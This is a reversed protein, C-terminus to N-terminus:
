PQSQNGSKRRKDGVIERMRRRLFTALGGRRRLYSSAERLGYAMFRAKSRLGGVNALSVLEYAIPADSCRVFAARELHTPGRWERRVQANDGDSLLCMAQLAVGALGELNQEAAVARAKEWDVEHTSQIAALDFLGSLRRRHPPTYMLHGAAHM